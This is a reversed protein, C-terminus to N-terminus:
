SKKAFAEAETLLKEIDGEIVLAIQEGDIVVGGPFVKNETVVQANKLYLDAM